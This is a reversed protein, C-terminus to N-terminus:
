PERLEVFDGPIPIPARRAEVCDPDNEDRHDPRAVVLLGLVQDVRSPAGDAPPTAADEAAASKLARETHGSPQFRGEEIAAKLEVISLPPCVHFYHVGNSDVMDYVGGCAPCIVRDM